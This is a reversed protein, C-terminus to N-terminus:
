TRIRYSNRIRAPDCVLRAPDYTIKTPEYELRLDDAKPTKQPGRACEALPFQATTFHEREGVAGSSDHAQHFLRYLVLRQPVQEIKGEHLFQFLM